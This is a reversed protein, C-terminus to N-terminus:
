IVHLRQSGPLKQSLPLALGSGQARPVADLSVLRGEASPQLGHLEPVAQGVPDRMARCHLAPVNLM